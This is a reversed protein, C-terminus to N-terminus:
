IYTHVLQIWNDKLSDEKNINSVDGGGSERRKRKRMQLGRSNRKKYGKLTPNVEGIGEGGRKPHRLFFFFLFFCPPFFFGM